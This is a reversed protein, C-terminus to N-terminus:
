RDIIAFPTGAIVGTVWFGVIGNKGPDGRASERGFGRVAM